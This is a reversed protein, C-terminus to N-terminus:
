FGGIPNDACMGHLSVYPLNGEGRVGTVIRLELVGTANIGPVGDAHITTSTGGGGSYWQTTGQARYQFTYDAPLQNCVGVSRAYYTVVTQCGQSSREHM